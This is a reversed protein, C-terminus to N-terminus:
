RGMRAEYARSIGDALAADPTNFEVRVRGDQQMIVNGRVPTGGRQGEITGTSRDERSIQVGQDRVAGVAASWSRDFTNPGANYGPPPPYGYPYYPDYVYCGALATVAALVCAIRCLTTKM